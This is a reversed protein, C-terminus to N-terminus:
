FAKALVLHTPLYVVLPFFAMLLALYLIPPLRRQPSNGPGFVWNVNEAPDTLWYTAPLVIWALLTQAIWARPDYGLRHLMWLLIAPLAVHFLSLARLYRPKERDFMYDALGSVRGRAVLQALVSVNWVLEPLLVGVAMMRALVRSELWLALGTAFLAIDSFWLFNGPGYKVWYVPVLLCVFATYSVKLWLPIASAAGREAAAGVTLLALLPVVALWRSTRVATVM